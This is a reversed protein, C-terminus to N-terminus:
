VLIMSFVHLIFIECKTCTKTSSYVVELTEGCFTTESYVTSDCNVCRTCGVDCAGHVCVRPTVIKSVSHVLTCVRACTKRRPYMSTDWSTSFISVFGQSRGLCTSLHRRPSYVLATFYSGLSDKNISISSHFGICFFFFQFRHIFDHREYSM